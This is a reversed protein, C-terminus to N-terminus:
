GHSQCVQLMVTWFFYNIHKWDIVLQKDIPQHSIQRTTWLPPSFHRICTVLKWFFSHNISHRADAAPRAHVRFGRGASYCKIHSKIFVKLMFISKEVKLKKNMKYCARRKLVIFKKIWKLQFWIQNSSTYLVFVIVLSTINSLLIISLWQYM